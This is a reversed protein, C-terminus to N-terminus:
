YGLPNFASTNRAHKKQLKKGYYLGIALGTLHSSSAFGGLIPLRIGALIAVLNITELGAFLRFATKIKMPIIFYLLVEAQPYLMAVMSFMAIVAGSAGVAPALSINGAVPGHIQYLLNRFLIYGISSGIGAILYIKLMELGGVVREVATGFFYFTIMNAALHFLGGHVLM